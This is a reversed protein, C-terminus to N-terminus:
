LTKRESLYKHLLKKRDIKGTQLLPIEPIFIIAKPMQFRALRLKLWDFLEDATLEPDGPIIFAVLREGFVADETGLVLADKIREHLILIDQVDQPHVNEGGSVIRDDSRGTIFYYGDKETCLDGTNWWKRRIGTMGWASKMLLCHNNNLCVHVGPLPKGITGPHLRLDEPTALFSFGGESSGYLNYLIEGFTAIARKSLEASLRAGGTFVISLQKLAADEEDILRLLITPVTILVDVTESQITTLISKTTSGTQIVVQKGLLFAVITTSLGFGHFLPVTILVNHQKHIESQTLLALLPSLFHFISPKRTASKANGSTGGSMVGIKGSRPFCFRKKVASTTLNTPLKEYYLLKEPPFELHWYRFSTDLILYDFARQQLLKGLQGSSLEQNILLLDMGLGSLAYLHLVWDHSNSFLLGAKQGPRLQHVERYYQKLQRCEHYLERYTCRTDATVLAIKDPFRKASFRLIAMLNIGERFLSGTLYYLGKFSLIGAENLAKFNKWM